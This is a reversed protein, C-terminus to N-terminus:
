GKIQDKVKLFLEMGKSVAETIAASSETAGSVAEIEGGAATLAIKSGLGKGKFQSLFEESDTAKTGIGPTEAHKVVKVGLIKGEPSLALGFGLASAFSFIITPIFGFKFRINYFCTGLICCNTTILPLYIGLGRYLAPSMKKIVFEVLQVFVAITLIFALTELYVIDFPVLLYHEVFWTIPGVCTLVFIVGFTMGVATDMRKSVGLFPCNGLFRILLINNVLVGSVILLLYDSFSWVEQEM